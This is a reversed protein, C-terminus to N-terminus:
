AFPQPWPNFDKETRVAYGMATPGEHLRPYARYQALPTLTMPLLDPIVVSVSTLGVEALERTTRDVAVAQMGKAALTGILRALATQPDAPLERHERPLRAHVGDTLFRFAESREATGMFRAGDTLERCEEASAPVPEATYMSPRFSLAEILAKEAAGALTRDTGCGVMSRARSDHEAVQLCYVTPVGLDSTADFLYTTIFHRESWELLYDLHDSSLPGTLSLPLKQLWVLAIADREVVECVAGVLAETADTHVACGTSISYSFREGPVRGGLMYNSMVAPVWTDAGTILDTGQEWRIRASRDFPLLPCDPRAYELESCRPIRSLDLVAGTLEDARAWVVRDSPLDLASYREAAEAIAVLRARDQDDIARGGGMPGRAAARGPVGSGISCAANSLRQLGRVPPWSWCASAVGYPSLLAELPAM